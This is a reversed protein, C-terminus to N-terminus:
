FPLDDLDEASTALEEADNYRRPTLSRFDNGVIEAYTKDTGDRGTFTVLRMRGTVVVLDGKHLFDNAFGAQKGFFVVKFITTDEKGQGYKYTNYVSFNTVEMGTPMYRMDPDSGLHGVVTISNLM